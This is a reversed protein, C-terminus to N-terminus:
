CLNKILSNLNEKEIILEDLAKESTEGVNFDGDTALIVRNTGGKIFKSKAVQYAVRIASEGPTDGEAELAEISKLITEKEVGSTPSLWVQM